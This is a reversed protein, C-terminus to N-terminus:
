LKREKKKLIKLSKAAATMAIIAAELHGMAEGVLAPSDAVGGHLTYICDPRGEHESGKGKRQCRKHDSNM